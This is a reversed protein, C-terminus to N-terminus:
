YRIQTYRSPIEFRIEEPTNIQVNSFELDVLVDGTDPSKLELKRIYSFKKDGILTVYEDFKLNVARANQKDALEMQQLLFDQPSLWYNNQNRTDVSQLYHNTGKIESTWNRMTLFIPNGLLISQLVNLNAPLNYLREVMQLEEAVYSNEFRNLIFISDPTVLLRALEIGLKKVNMWLVSDKKLKITSTISVSREEDEYRIKAKASFWDANIQNAAMKKLLYDPTEKNKPAAVTGKSTKCAALLLLSALFFLAKNNM